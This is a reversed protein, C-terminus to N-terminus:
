NSGKDFAIGIACQINHLQYSNNIFLNYGISMLFSCYNKRGIRCLLGTEVDGGHSINYSFVDSSHEYGGYGGGVYWYLSQKPTLNVLLGTTIDYSSAGVKDRLKSKEAKSADIKNEIQYISKTWFMISTKLNMYWGVKRMVGFSIGIPSYVNAPDMLNVSGFLGFYTYRHKLSNLHFSKSVSSSPLINITEDKTEYDDKQITVTYKGLLNQITTNTQYRYTSPKLCDVPSACEIDIQANKPETITLSGGLKISIRTGYRTLNVNQEESTYGALKTYVSYAGPELSYDSGRGMCKGNIYVEADDEKEIILKGKTANLQVNINQTESMVIDREDTIYGDKSIILHYKGDRTLKNDYKNEAVFGSFEIRGNENKITLNFGEVNTNVVLIEKNKNPDLDPAKLKIFYVEKPSLKNGNIDKNIPISISHYDKHSVIIKKTSTVKSPVVFLRYIGTNKNYEANGVMYDSTFNVNDLHLEVEVVACFNGNLDQKCGAQRFSSTHKLYKQDFFEIQNDQAFLPFALCFLTALLFYKKM